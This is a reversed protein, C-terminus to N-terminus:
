GAKIRKTRVAARGQGHVRQLLELVAAQSRFCGRVRAGIDGTKREIREFPNVADGRVDRIGPPM